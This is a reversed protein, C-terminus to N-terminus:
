LLIRDQVQTPLDLTALIDLLDQHDEYNIIAIQTIAAYPLYFKVGIDLRNLVEIAKTLNRKQVRPNNGVLITSPIDVVDHEGIVAISPLLNLLLSIADPYRFLYPINDNSSVKSIVDLNGTFILETYKEISEVAEELYGHKALTSILGIVIDELLSPRFNPTLEFGELLTSAVSKM